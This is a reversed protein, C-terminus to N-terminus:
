QSSAIPQVGVQFSTSWTNNIKALTKGSHISITPANDLRFNTRVSQANNVQEMVWNGETLCSQTFDVAKKYSELADVQNNFGKQCQYALQQGSFQSIQCQDGVLHYKAQWIDAYKNTVKQAKLGNFENNYGKVLANIKECASLNDVQAKEEPSLTTNCGSLIILSSILPLFRPM